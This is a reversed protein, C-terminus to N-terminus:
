EITIFVKQGADIAAKMKPWFRAFAARSNSIWDVTRAEGVLICGLTDKDSNGPHIRVEDYDPVNVLLPMEKEFIGSFSTTVQYRGTPIATEGYVKLSKLEDLSMTSKLGRDKDELTFCEFVDDVYMKGTTSNESHVDRIVKIEM